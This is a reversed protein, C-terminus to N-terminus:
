KWEGVSDDFYVEEEKIPILGFLIASLMEGGDGYETVVGYVKSKEFVYTGYDFDPIYSSVTM